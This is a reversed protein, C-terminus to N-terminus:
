DEDDELNTIEEQEELRNKEVEEDSEESETLKDEMKEEFNSKGNEFEVEKELENEQNSIANSSEEKLKENTGTEQAVLTNESEKDSDLPQELSNKDMNINELIAEAPLVTKDILARDDIVPKEFEGHLNLDSSFIRHLQNQHLIAKTLYLGNIGAKKILDSVDEFDHPVACILRLANAIPIGVQSQLIERCQRYSDVLQDLSPSFPLQHIWPAEYVINLNILQHPSIGNLAKSLQDSLSQISHGSEYDEPTEGICLFPILGSQAIAKIKKPLNKEKEATALLDERSNLLVFQSQIEKVMRVSIQETFAGENISLISDSGFVLGSDRYKDLMKQLYVYPLALFHQEPSPKCDELLKDLLAMSQELSYYASWSALFITSPARLDTSLSTM